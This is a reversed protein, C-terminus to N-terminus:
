AKNSSAAKWMAALDDHRLQSKVVLKYADPAAEYIAKLEALLSAYESPTANRITAAGHGTAFAYDCESHQGIHSYCVICGYNAPITPFLAIVERASEYTTIPNGKVGHYTAYKFLVPLIPRPCINGQAIWAFLTAKMTDTNYHLGDNPCSLQEMLELILAAERNYGWGNTRATLTLDSDPIYLTATTTTYGNYPSPKGSKFTLTPLNTATSQAKM